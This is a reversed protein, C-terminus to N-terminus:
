RVALVQRDVPLHIGNTASHEVLMRIWDCSVEVFIQVPYLLKAFTKQLTKNRPLEVRGRTAAWWRWAAERHAGGQAFKKSQRM